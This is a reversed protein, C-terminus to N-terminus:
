FSCADMAKAESLLNKFLSYPVFPFDTSASLDQTLFYAYEYTWLM